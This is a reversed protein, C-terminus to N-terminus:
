LTGSIVNVTTVRAEGKLSYPNLATDPDVYHIGSTPSSAEIEDIYEASHVRELHERTASPALHHAVFGDLGDGILRDQIADLRQPCEPHHSGMDHQHCAPHTIYATHVFLRSHLDGGPGARVDGGPLRASHLAADATTVLWTNWEITADKKSEETPHCKAGGLGVGNGYGLPQRGHEGFESSDDDALLGRELQRQGAEERTAM